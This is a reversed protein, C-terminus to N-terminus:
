KLLSLLIVLTSTAHDKMFKLKAIFNSKKSNNITTADNTELSLEEMLIANEECDELEEKQLLRRYSLGNVSLKKLKNNDRQANLTIDHDQSGAGHDHSRTEHNHSEAESEAELDHQSQGTIDQTATPVIGDNIVINGKVAM